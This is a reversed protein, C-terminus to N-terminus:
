PTGKTYISHIVHDKRPGSVRWTTSFVGEGEFVYTVDYTDPACDHRDALRGPGIRHFPRGDEFLVALGDDEERWLYRRQARLVPGDGMRLEGTEEQMLGPGHRRWVCTGALVGTAGARRDEIRRALAWRGELADLSIM